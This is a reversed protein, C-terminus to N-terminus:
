SQHRRDCVSHFDPAGQPSALSDSRTGALVQGVRDNAVAPTDQAAALERMKKREAVDAQAQAKLKAAKAAKAEARYLMLSPLQRFVPLGVLLFLFLPYTSRAKERSAIASDALAQVKMVAAAALEAEAAARDAAAATLMKKAAEAAAEAEEAPSRDVAASLDLGTPTRQSRQRNSRRDPENKAAAPASHGFVVVDPREGGLRELFEEERAALEAQKIRAAMAEDEKEQEPRNRFNARRQVDYQVSRSPEM